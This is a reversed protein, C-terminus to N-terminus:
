IITAVALFIKKDEKPICYIEQDLTGFPFQKTYYLLQNVAAVFKIKVPEVLM